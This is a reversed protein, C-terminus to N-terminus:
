TTSDRTLETQGHSMHEGSQSWSESTARKKHLNIEGQIRTTSENLNM